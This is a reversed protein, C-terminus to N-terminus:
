EDTAIENNIALKNGVGILRTDPNMVLKDYEEFPRWIVARSGDFRHPEEGPKSLGILALAEGEDFEKMGRFTYAVYTVRSKKIMVMARVGTERFDNWTMFGHMEPKERRRRDPEGLREILANPGSGLLERYYLPPKEPACSVMLLAACAGIAFTM